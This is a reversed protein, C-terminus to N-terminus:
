HINNKDRKCVYSKVASFLCVIIQIIVVGAIIHYGHVVM